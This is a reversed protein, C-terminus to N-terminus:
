KPYTSQFSFRTDKHARLAWIGVVPADLLKFQARSVNVLIQSVNPTPIPGHLPCARAIHASRVPKVQFASLRLPQSSGGLGAGKRWKATKFRCVLGKGLCFILGNPNVMCLVLAGAAMCFKNESIALPDIAGLTSRM